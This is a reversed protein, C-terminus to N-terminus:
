LGLASLWAALLPILISGSTADKLYEESREKPHEALDQYDTFVCPYQSQARIAFDLRSALGILWRAIDAQGFGSYSALLLFLSIEIGHQDCLPSFLASNNEILQLGKSNWE